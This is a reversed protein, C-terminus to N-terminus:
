RFENYARGASPFNRVHRCAPFCSSMRFSQDGYTMFGQSIVSNERERGSLYGCWSIRPNDPFGLDMNPMEACVSFIQSVWYLYKVEHRFWDVDWQGLFWPPELLHKCGTVDCCPELHASRAGVNIPRENWIWCLRMVGQFKAEIGYECM